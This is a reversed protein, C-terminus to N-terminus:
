LRQFNRFNPATGTHATGADAGTSPAHPCTAVHSMRRAQWMIEWMLLAAM